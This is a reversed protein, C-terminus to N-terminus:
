EFSSARPRDEVTLCALFNTSFSRGSRMMQCGLMLGAPIIKRAKGGDSSYVWAQPVTDGDLDAVAGGTFVPPAATAVTNYQFYVSGEPTWGLLDFGVPPVAPAPWAAKVTGPVAAPVAAASVYAGFEALYSEEATRIAALNVKGESSKAKLQFRLFNPIAIAALIGIIAVVIMLEILTFGKRNQLTKKM